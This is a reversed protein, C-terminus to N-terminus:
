FPEWSKSFRNKKPIWHPAKPPLVPHGDDPYVMSAKTINYNKRRPQFVKETKNKLKLFFTSVFNYM